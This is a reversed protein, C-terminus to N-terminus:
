RDEDFLSLARVEGVDVAVDVDVVRHTETREDETVTRCSHDLGHRTLDGIAARHERKSVIEFTLGSGSDGLTDRRDVRQPESVGTGFAHLVGKAEGPGEGTALLNQAELTVVMTPRVGDVPRRM